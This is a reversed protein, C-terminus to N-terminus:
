MRWHGGMLNEVVDVKIKLEAAIVFARVKM